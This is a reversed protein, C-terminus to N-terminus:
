LRVKVLPVLMEEESIGGHNSLFLSKKAREEENLYHRLAYNEKTILVYDGIREQLRSHPLLLGFYGEKILEETRHLTCYKGLQHKVYQEFKQRCHPKVYCFLARPEGCCARELCETILPYDNLIITRKKGATIHGHDAVILFLTNTRKAKRVFTKVGEDLQKLYERSARGEKGYYHCCNDYDGWYLYIYKRKQDTIGMENEKQLIERTRSLLTRFNPVGIGTAKGKMWKNYTGDHLKKKLLFYSEVPFDAFISKPFLIKEKSTKLMKRQRNCFPLIAVSDDLEKLYVHWAPFGHEGPAMGTYFTTVAAATTSPFVSTLTASQHKPMFSQSSDKKLLKLSDVGMGDIVLLVVNQAERIESTLEPIASYNNTRAGFGELISSMLNVLSNKRYNPLM